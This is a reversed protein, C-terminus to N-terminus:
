KIKVFFEVGKKLRCKAEADEQNDRRRFLLDEAETRDSPRICVM